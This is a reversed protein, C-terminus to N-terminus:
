ALVVHSCLVAAADREHADFENVLRETESINSQPEYLGAELLALPEPKGEMSREGKLTDILGTALCM